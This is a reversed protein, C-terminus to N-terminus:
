VYTNGQGDSAICSGYSSAPSLGINNSQRAWIVNGSSDYKVTLACEYGRNIPNTLMYSGFNVTDVFSGTIAVKGNRDTCVGSANAYSSRSTCNSRKAWLANGNNDYKVLSSNVGDGPILTDNGYVVEGSVSGGIYINGNLDASISTAGTGGAIDNPQRVWALTGSSTYKILYCAGNQKLTDNGLIVPGTYDGCTYANNFKDVAVSYGEANGGSISTGEYGWLWSQANTGSFELCFFLCCFLLKSCKM